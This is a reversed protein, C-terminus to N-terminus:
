EESDSDAEKNATKRKKKKSIKTKGKKAEATSATNTTATAASTNFDNEWSRLQQSVACSLFDQSASLLTHTHTHTHTNAANSLIVQSCAIPPFKRFRSATPHM